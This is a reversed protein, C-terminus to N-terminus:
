TNLKENTHPSDLQASVLRDSRWLITSSFYLTLLFGRLLDFSVLRTRYDLSVRLRSHFLLDIKILSACVFFRFIFFDTPIANLDWCTKKMNCPLGEVFIGIEHFDDVSDALPLAEGCSSSVSLGFCVSFEFRCPAGRCFSGGYCYFFCSGLCYSCCVSNISVFFIQSLHWLWM